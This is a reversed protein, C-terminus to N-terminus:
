FPAHKSQIFATGPAEAPSGLEGSQVLDIFTETQQVPTPATPSDGCSAVLSLLIAALAIPFLRAVARRVM